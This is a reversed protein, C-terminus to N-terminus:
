SDALTYLTEVQRNFELVDFFQYGYWIYGNVTVSKGGVCACVIVVSDFGHVRVNPNSNRNSSDEQRDLSPLLQLRRPSLQVFCSSLCTGLKEDFTTQAHFSAPESYVFLAALRPTLSIVLLM